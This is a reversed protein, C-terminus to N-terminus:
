PPLSPASDEEAPPGEEPPEEAAREILPAQQPKADPAKLYLPRPPASAPDAALGLRAVYAIDPAIREGVVEAKLGTSWAEIALM